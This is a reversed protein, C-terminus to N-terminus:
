MFIIFSFDCHSRKVFGWVWVRLVETHQKDIGRWGFRAMMGKRGVDVTVRVGDRQEQERARDGSHM